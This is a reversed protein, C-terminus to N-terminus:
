SWWTNASTEKIEIRAAIPNEKSKKTTKVSFLVKFLNIM